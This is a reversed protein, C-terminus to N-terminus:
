YKRQHTHMNHMQAKERNDIISLLLPFPALRALGYVLWSVLKPVLRAGESAGVHRQWAAPAQQNVAHAALPIPGM